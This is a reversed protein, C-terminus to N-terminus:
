PQRYFTQPVCNKNLDDIKYGLATCTENISTFHESCKEKSSYFQSKTTDLKLEIANMGADIKEDTTKFKADMKSELETIKLLLKNNFVEQNIRFDTELCKEIEKVLKENEQQLKELEANKIYNEASLEVTKKELKNKLQFIENKLEEIFNKEATKTTPVETTTLNGQRELAQPDTCNSEISSILNALKPHNDFIQGSYCLNKTFSLKSLHKLNSLAGIGIFKIPNYSLDLYVINPTFEFLDSEIAELKNGQLFLIRLQDGFPQLDYKSITTLDSGAFM